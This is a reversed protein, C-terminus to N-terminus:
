NVAPVIRYDARFVLNHLDAAAIARLIPLQAEADAADIVNLPWDGVTAGRLHPHHFGAGYYAHLTVPPIKANRQKPWSLAWIVEVGGDACARPETETITGSGLLLGDNLEDLVQRAFPALLRAEEGFRIEKDRRTVAGDHSGDRLDIFHRALAAVHDTTEDM